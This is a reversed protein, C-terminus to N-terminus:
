CHENFKSCTNKDEFNSTQVKPDPRTCFLTVESLYMVRWAQRITWFTFNAGQPQMNVTTNNKRRLGNGGGFYTLIPM